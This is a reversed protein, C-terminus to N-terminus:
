EWLCWHRVGEARLFPEADAGRLLALTALMGAQTCHTALVTVSHPGGEVPWGTFPNLVHSYRHGDRLLFRRSDGSTAVAGSRLPIRAAVGNQHLNEIGVQWPQEGSVALDGGFNILVDSDTLQRALQLCRDVAYEKGVGGLDLEMGVPLRVRGSERAVKQWGILPLLAKVDAAAPIRDSGDFRWVRRLVGSTIDFHGDSLRWCQDAYDLLRDFEEDVEVWNGGARHLAALPNDDRYRSYRQEVRWAEGSVVKLIQEARSRSVDRVQLECPSAMAQFQGVWGEATRQLRTKGPAIM